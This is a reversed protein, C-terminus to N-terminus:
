KYIRELYDIITLFDKKKFDYDRRAIIGNEKFRLSELNARADYIFYLLGWESNKVKFEVDSEVQVVGSNNKSLMDFIKSQTNKRYVSRNDIVAFYFRTFPLQDSDFNDESSSYNWLV